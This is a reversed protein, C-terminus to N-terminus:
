AVSEQLPPVASWATGFGALAPVDRGMVPAFSFYDLYRLARAEDLSSHDDTNGADFPEARMPDTM